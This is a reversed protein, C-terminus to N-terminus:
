PMHDFLELARQAGYLKSHGYIMSNWSFLNPNSFKLLVREAIDPKGCNIYMDVM